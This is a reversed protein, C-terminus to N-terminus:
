EPLIGGLVYSSLTSLMEFDHIPSTNIPATYGNSTSYTTQNNLYPSNNSSQLYMNSASTSQLESPASETRSRFSGDNIVAQNASLASPMTPEAFNSYFDNGLGNINSLSSVTM